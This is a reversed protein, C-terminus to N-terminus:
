WAGGQEGSAPNLAVWPPRAPRAGPKARALTEWVERHLVRQWYSKVPWPKDQSAIPGAAKGSPVQLFSSLRETGWNRSEYCPLIMTSVDCSLPMDMQRDVGEVALACFYEACHQCPLM